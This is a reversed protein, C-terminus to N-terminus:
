ATSALSRPDLSLNRQPLQHTFHGTEIAGACRRLLADVRGLFEDLQERMGLEDPLALMATDALQLMTTTELVLKAAPSLRDVGSRAAPDAEPMPLQAVDAALRDLQFVVSRPNGADLLLLDLVTEVQAQSRYRRRYTIISEATTLVSELLLSETANSNVSRLTSRLLSVLQMAREIRRGADMFHWGPDRVMSESALGGLALLSQM